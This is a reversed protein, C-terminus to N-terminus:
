TTQTRGRDMVARRRAEVEDASVRRNAATSMEAELTLGEAFSRNFGQNILKKYNRLMAPDISAMDRALARAEPLLADPAVVRNVLGWDCATQANLFNGTFSLERARYIGILRSLKQSLGWGPMIGVRAHTDAFRAHTSAILVDCALAVEFGGTIAVGNIAGIVPKTCGEIAKVPNRRADEANADGLNGTDAGLEKLDLGATFAKDGAGTLIIVRITEDAELTTMAEALEARLAASLANMAEPRNLTVVAIADECDITVLPM